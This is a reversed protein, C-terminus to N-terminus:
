FRNIFLSHTLYICLICKINPYFQMDMEQLTEKATGPPLGPYRTFLHKLRLIEQEAAAPQAWDERYRGLLLKEREETLQPLAKPVLFGASHAPDSSEAFRSLSHSSCIWGLTNLLLTQLYVTAAERHDQEEHALVLERQWAVHTSMRICDRHIQGQRQQRTSLVNNTLYTDDSFWPETQSM